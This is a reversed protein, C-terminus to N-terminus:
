HGVELKLRLPQKKINSIDIYTYRHAKFPENDPHNSGLVKCDGLCIREKLTFLAKALSYHEMIMTSLKFITILHHYSASPDFYLKCIHVFESMKYTIKIDACNIRYQREHINWKQDIQKHLFCSAVIREVVFVFM